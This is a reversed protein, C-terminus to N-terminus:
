PGSTRLRFGVHEIASVRMELKDIEIEIQDILEQVSNLRKLIQAVSSIHNNPPQFKSISELDAIRKELEGIEKNFDNDSDM